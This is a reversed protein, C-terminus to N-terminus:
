RRRYRPARREDLDVLQGEYDTTQFLLATGSISRCTLRFRYTYTTTHPRWVIVISDRGVIALSDVAREPGAEGAAERMWALLTDRPQAFVFQTGSEDQTEPATRIQGFAIPSSDAALCPLDIRMRRAVGDSTQSSLPGPVVVFLLVGLGLQPIPVGPIM